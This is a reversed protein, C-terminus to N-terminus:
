YYGQYNKSTEPKDTTEEGTGVMIIKELMRAVGVMDLQKNFVKEVAGGLQYTFIKYYQENVYMQQLRDCEMVQDNIFQNDFKIPPEEAEGM